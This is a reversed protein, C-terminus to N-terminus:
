AKAALSRGQAAQAQVGRRRAHNVVESADEPSAHHHVMLNCGREALALAIAAGLRRGAGTVIATRGSIEM